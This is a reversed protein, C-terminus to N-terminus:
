RFENPIKSRWSIGEPSCVFLLQFHGYFYHIKGNFITSREMAIHCNVLPYMLKLHSVFAWAMPCQGFGTSDQSEVLSFGHHTLDMTMWGWGGLVPLIYNLKVM